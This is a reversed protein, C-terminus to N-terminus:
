PLPFFSSSDLLFSDLSFRSIVTDAAALKVSAKVSICFFYSFSVPALSEIVKSAEPM